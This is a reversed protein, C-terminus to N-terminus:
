GGATARVLEVRDGDALRSTALDCRMVPAGNHEVAALRREIDLAVVLDHLTSGVPLAVPRGNAFVKIGCEEDPSM